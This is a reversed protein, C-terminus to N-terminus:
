LSADAGWFQGPAADASVFHFGARHAFFSDLDTDGVHYYEEADFQHKVVELQHKLVTFEVRIDHRKWLGRQFSITRDSCSGILFGMAKANRVMDLTILGPPDGVELTGDIDFSILKQM